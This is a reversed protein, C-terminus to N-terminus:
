VTAREATAHGDRDRHAPCAAVYPCWGCEVGVRPQPDVLRARLEEVAAALWERADTGAAPGDLEEQTMRGGLLDAVAVSIRGPLPDDVLLLAVRVEPDAALPAPPPPRDLHLLRIEVPGTGAVGGAPGDSGGSGSRPAAARHRVVLPPPGVLRVGLSPFPREWAASPLVEVPDGFLEAYWLRAATLVAQEEESLDDVPVATPRPRPDGGEAHAHRVAEALRDRVAWRTDGGRNGTRGAHALSLRWSCGRRPDRLMSLNVRPLPEGDHAPM